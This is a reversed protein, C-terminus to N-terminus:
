SWEGGDGSDGSNGSDAGDNGYASAVTIPEDRSDGSDAGHYRHYRHYRPYRPYRHYRHYRHYWSLPAPVLRDRDGVARAHKRPHHHVLLRSETEDRVPRQRQEALAVLPVSLRDLLLDGGRELLRGPDPDNM